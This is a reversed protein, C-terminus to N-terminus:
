KFTYYAIIGIILVFLVTIFNFFKRRNREKQENLRKICHKHYLYKRKAEDIVEISLYKILIEIFIEFDSIQKDM